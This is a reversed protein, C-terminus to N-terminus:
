RIVGVIFAVDVRLKSPLIIMFFNEPHALLQDTNSSLILSLYIEEVLAEVAIPILLIHPELKSLM